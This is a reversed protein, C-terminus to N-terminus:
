DKAKKSTFIYSSHRFFEPVIIVITILKNNWRIAHVYLTNQHDYVNLIKTGITNVHIHLSLSKLTVLVCSKEITDIETHM